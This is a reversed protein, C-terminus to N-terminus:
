DGQLCQLLMKIFISIRTNLVNTDGLWVQTEGDITFELQMNKFQSLTSNQLRM